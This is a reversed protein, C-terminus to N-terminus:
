KGDAKVREFLEGADAELEDLTQDRTEESVMVVKALDERFEKPCHEMAQLLAKELVNMHRREAGYLRRHLGYLFQMQERDM